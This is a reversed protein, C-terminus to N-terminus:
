LCGIKGAPFTYEAYLNVPALPNWVTSTPDFPAGGLQALLPSSPDYFNFLCIANQYQPTNQHGRSGLLGKGCGANIQPCYTTVGRSFTPNSYGTPVPNDITGNCQATESNFDWKAIIGSTTCTANQATAVHGVAYKTDM